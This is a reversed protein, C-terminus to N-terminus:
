MLPRSRTSQNLMEPPQSIASELFRIRFDAGDFPAAGVCLPHPHSPAALTTASHVGSGLSILRAPRRSAVSDIKTFRCSQRPKANPNQLHSEGANRIRQRWTEGIPESGTGIRQGDSRAARQHQEGVGDQRVAVATSRTRPRRLTYRHDGSIAAFSVPYTAITMRLM